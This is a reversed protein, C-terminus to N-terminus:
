IQIRAVAVIQIGPAQLSHCETNAFNMRRRQESLYIQLIKSALQRQLHPLHHTRNGHVGRSCSLIQLAMSFDSEDNLLLLMTITSLLLATTLIPLTITSLPLATLLTITNIVVKGSDVIVKGININAFNNINNVKIINGNIDAINQTIQALWAPAAASGPDHSFIVASEYSEAEGINDNIHLANPYM